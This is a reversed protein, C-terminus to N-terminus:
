LLSLRRRAAIQECAPLPVHEFAVVLVERKWFRGGGGRPHGLLDVPERSGAVSGGSLLPGGCQCLGRLRSRRGARLEPFGPSRASSSCACSRASGNPFSSRM